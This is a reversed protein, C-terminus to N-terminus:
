DAAVSTQLAPSSDSSAVFLPLPGLKHPLPRVHSSSPKESRSIRRLLLLACILRYSVIVDPMSLLMFRLARIVYRDPHRVLRM